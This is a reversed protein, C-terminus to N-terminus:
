LMDETSIVSLWRFGLIYRLCKNVFVQLKYHLGRTSHWTKVNTSFIMLKTNLCPQRSLWVPQLARNRRNNHHNRWHYEVEGSGCWDCSNRIEKTRKCAPHTQKGPLSDECELLWVKNQVETPVPQDTKPHGTPNSGIAESKDELAQGMKIWM